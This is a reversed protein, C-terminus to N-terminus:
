GEAGEAPEEFAEDGLASEDIVSEDDNLELDVAAGAGNSPAPPDLLELVGAAKDARLRAEKAAQIVKENYKTFSAQLESAWKTFGCKLLLAERRKTIKQNLKNVREDRETELRKAEANHAAVDAKAQAIRSDRWAAFADDAPPAAVPTSDSTNKNVM